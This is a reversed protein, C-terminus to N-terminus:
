WTGLTKRMPEATNSLQKQKKWGNNNWSNAGKKMKQQMGPMKQQMAPVIAVMWLAGGDSPKNENAMIDCLTISHKNMDVVVLHWHQNKLVPIAWEEKLDEAVKMPMMKMLIWPLARIM